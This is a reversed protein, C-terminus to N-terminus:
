PDPARQPDITHTPYPRFDSDFSSTAGTAAFRARARALDEPTDVGPEAAPASVLGIPWGACLWALQELDEALALPGRPLHAVAALAEPEFAYVGLHLRGPIAARSFYRAAGDDDAVVKVAHRDELAGEPLPAAATAIRAGARVAAVLDSLVKAAVFPEDGQVNLIVELDPLAEHAALARAVRATGSPCAEDVRVVLGGRDTVAAAVEADDTTVWVADVAACARVAEVVRWVLPAGGLDALPKDPLRTSGRRAPIVALVRVTRPM